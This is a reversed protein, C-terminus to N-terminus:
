GGAIVEDADPAQAEAQPARRRHRMEVWLGRVGRRSGGVETGDLETGPTRVAQIAAASIPLVGEGRLPQPSIEARPTRRLAALVSPLLVGAVSRYGDASPHFQDPGFLLAPAAAFEPGLIPGLSVTRGGREIVVVTQSAALKRSLVRAVQKLPPPLPGLTGLDPCTGVVVEVGAERFRRVGEALHRVSVTQPVAHTVDNAGILIVAVNPQTPLARDIQATLDSTRAGVMAFERLHVRRDAREALGSALFAGPTEEVRYVGYGAASSDGLLAVKLAPGPRGRGYWGTADPPKEETLVGITKRALTAEAWLLAGATGILAFAGGGGKAAVSAVKRAAAATEV